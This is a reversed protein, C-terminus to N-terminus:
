KSQSPTEFSVVDKYPRREWGTVNGESDTLPFSAVPVIEVRWVGSGSPAVNVEIHGYHKGGAVLHKGEWVEPADDHALFQRYPNDFGISPGRLGDGGMGVDYFHIGHPRTSGDPLTETGTVFSRELMEDHGSFVTDVGYKFFLPQLVRMAIGSQGSFDKQGFPISHPGSGYMTHHFQVFTFRSKKQADALQAELWRYQESGPNFDPANSGDLNHNTDAATQHPLGDSSDLTILAVPGYDIRYYRGEHVSNTAHNPPVDFYTTFKATSFNAGEASYGGGPGAYNEHNGIAALLPISDAVTGYEGANHKWFEDWDRQEGGTEVLDGTVVIFNPQREAMLRCNERYGVTQDVLYRTMGEPRNCNAPAPWDVPPTTSSEPETEPDSYVLFRIPQDATPATTFASAFEKLGQRVRYPYKTGAKLGTLRISHMWPAEPHTGGPETKFPNYVLTEARVPASHIVKQDSGDDITLTGVASDDSLWRVTMADTGPNQLYPFVRFEAARVDGIMLLALLAATCAFSQVRM